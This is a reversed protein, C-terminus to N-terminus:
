RTARWAHFAGLVRAADLKKGGFAAALAPSGAYRPPARDSRRDLTVHPATAAIRALLADWNHQAGGMVRHAGLGEYGLGKQPLVVQVAGSSPTAVLHLALSTTETLTGQSDYALWAARTAERRSWRTGMWLHANALHVEAQKLNAKETRTQQNGVSSSFLLFAARLDTWPFWGERPEEGATRYVFSADDIAFASATEPTPADLLEDLPVLLARAGAAELAAVVDHARDPDAATIPAPVMQGIRMRADAVQLGLVEAVRIV